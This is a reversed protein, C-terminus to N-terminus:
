LRYYVPVPTDKWAEYKQSGQRLVMQDVAVTQVVKDYGALMFIVTAACWFALMWLCCRCRASKNVRDVVTKMRRSGVTDYSENDPITGM